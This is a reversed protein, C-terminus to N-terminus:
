KVIDLKKRKEWLSKRSIGLKKSLETDPYSSQFKLVTHKVYENITMIESRDNPNKDCDFIITEYGFDYDEKTCIVVNKNKIKESVLMKSINRFNDAGSLLYLKTSEFRFTEIQSPDELCVFCVEMERQEAMNLMVKKACKISNTKIVFPLKEPIALESSVIDKYTFDLYSDFINSKRKLEKFEKYHNIKKILEDVAFPKVVYDSAGYKIPDSVTASSVYSVLLIIISKDKFMKIIETTETTTFNTSLLVTEYKKKDDDDINKVESISSKMDCDFGKSEMKACLSQALYIENEVILAKM